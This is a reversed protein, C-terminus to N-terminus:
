KRGASKLAEFRTLDLGRLMKELTDADASPSTASIQVRNALSVTVRADHGDARPQRTVLPAGVKAVAPLLGSSVTIRASQEGLTYKAEVVPQLDQGRLPLPKGLETQQWGALAGPFLMLLEDASVAGPKNSSAMSKRGSQENAASAAAPVAGGAAAALVAACVAAGSIHRPVMNWLSTAHM